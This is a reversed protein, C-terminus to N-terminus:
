EVPCSGSASATFYVPAGTARDICKMWAYASASGTDSRCPASRNCWEKNDCRAAGGLRTSVSVSVWSDDAPVSPSFIDYVTAMATLDGSWAYVNATPRPTCWVAFSEPNSPLLLAEQLEVLHKALREKHSSDSGAQQYQRQLERQVETLGSKGAFLAYRAGIRRGEFVGPSVQNLLVKEDGTDLQLAAQRTDITTSSTTASESCAAILLMSLTGLRMAMSRSM